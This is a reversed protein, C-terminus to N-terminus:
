IKTQQLIQNNTTTRQGTFVGVQNWILRNLFLLPDAQRELMEAPGAEQGVPLFDLFHYQQWPSSELECLIM